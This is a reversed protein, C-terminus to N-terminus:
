RSYMYGPLSACRFYSVSRAQTSRKSEKGLGGIRFWLKLGKLQFLVASRSKADRREFNDIGVSVHAIWSHKRYSALSDIFYLNGEGYESYSHWTTRGILEAGVLINRATELDGSAAKRYNRCQKQGETGVPMWIGHVVAPYEATPANRALASSSLAAGLCATLVVSKATM